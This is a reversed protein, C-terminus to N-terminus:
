KNQNRNNKIGYIRVKLYNLLLSLNLSIKTHKFRGDFDNNNNSNERDMSKFFSVVKSQSQLVGVLGEVFGFMMGNKDVKPPILVEGVREFITFFVWLYIVKVKLM